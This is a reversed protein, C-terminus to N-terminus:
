LEKWKGDPCRYIVKGVEAWVILRQCGDCPMALVARANRKRRAAVYLVAGVARDRNARLICHCEAHQGFGTPGSSNWGWAFIGHDDGLVAAVQVACESRDLLDVALQRPDSPKIM